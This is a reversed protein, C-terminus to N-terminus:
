FRKGPYVPLLFIGGAKAFPIQNYAIPKGEPAQPTPPNTHNHSYAWNQM